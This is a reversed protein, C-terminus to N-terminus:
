KKIYMDDTRGLIWDASINYKICLIYLTITNILFLSNEYKGYTTRDINCDNALETKSFGLSTRLYKLKDGVDEKTTCIKEYTKKDNKSIGLLYDISYHYNNSLYILKDLPISDSGTEWGSVTKKTVGFINGFQDQTMRLEERCLKINNNIVM